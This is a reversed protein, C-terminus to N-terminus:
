EFDKLVAVAKGVIAVDNMEENTFILPEYEPNEAVLTISNTKTYVKKLTAETEFNTVQVAAIEGNEVQPQKRIFVIDGDDIGANIMSDGQCRLAFDAKVTDPLISKREINKQALIPTGCAITGVLPIYTVSDLPILNSTVHNSHPQREMDVDYGMLWAESVNLALALKYINQQKPEFSGSLYQSIASKGIGTHECIESQKMNRINLAERFRIAFSVKKM